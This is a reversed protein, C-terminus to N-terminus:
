GGSSWVKGKQGKGCGKGGHEEGEGRGTEWKRASPNKKGEEAKQWFYLVLKSLM